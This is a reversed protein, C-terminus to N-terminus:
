LNIKIVRSPAKEVDLLVLKLDEFGFIYITIFM